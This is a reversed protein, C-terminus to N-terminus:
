EDDEYSIGAKKLLAALREAEKRAQEKERREQEKERCEQEAMMRAQELEKRAQEVANKWTREQRAAELRKLYLFYDEKNSAFNDLVAFAQRMEETDMGEPLNNMDMNEGERFFHVWREKDSNLLHEPNWYPLQLM